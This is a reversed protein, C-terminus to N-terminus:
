NARVEITNEDGNDAEKSTSIRDESINLKEILYKRALMLKNEAVSQSSKSTGPHAVLMIKCSPNDRLKAAISALNTKAAVDLM